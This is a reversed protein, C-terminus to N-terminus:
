WDPRLQGIQARLLELGRGLNEEAPADRVAHLHWGWKDAFLRFREASESQLRFFGDAGSDGTTRLDELLGVQGSQSMRWRYALEVPGDVLRGFSYVDGSAVLQVVSEVAQSSYWPWARPLPETVLPAFTQGRHQKSVESIIM